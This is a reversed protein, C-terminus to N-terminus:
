YIILPVFLLELLEEALRIGRCKETKWDFLFVLGSFEISVGFLLRYLGAKVKRVGLHGIKGMRSIRAM